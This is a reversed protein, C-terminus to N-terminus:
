LEGAFVLRGRASIFHRQTPSGDVELVLEVRSKVNRHITLAVKTFPDLDLRDLIMYITRQQALRVPGAVWIRAKIRCLDLMVKGKVGAYSGEYWSIDAAAVGDAIADEATYTASV